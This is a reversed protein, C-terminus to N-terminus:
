KHSTTYIHNVRQVAQTSCQFLTGCTRTHERRDLLNEKSGKRIVENNYLRISLWKKTRRKLVYPLNWIFKVTLTKMHFEAM